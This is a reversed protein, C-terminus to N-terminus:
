PGLLRMTAICSVRYMANINYGMSCSSLVGGGGVKFNDIMVSLRAKISDETPRISEGAAAVHASFDSFVKRWAKARKKPPRAYPRRKLVINLLEDSYKSKRALTWFKTLVM